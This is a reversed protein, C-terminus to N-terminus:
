PKCSRVVIDSIAVSRGLADPEMANVLLADPSLWLVGLFVTLYGKARESMRARARADM